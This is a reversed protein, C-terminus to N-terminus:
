KKSSKKKKDKMEVRRSGARLRGWPAFSSIPFFFVFFWVVLAVYRIAVYLWSTSANGLQTEALAVSLLLAGVLVPAFLQRAAKVLAGAQPVGASLHKGAVLAFAMSNAFAFITFATLWFEIPNESLIWPSLDVLCPIFLSCLVFPFLACAVSKKVFIFVVLSVLAFIGFMPLVINEGGDLVLLAVFSVLTSVISAVGARVGGFVFLMAVCAVGAAILYRASSFIDQVGGVSAFWVSFANSSSLPVSVFYQWGSVFFGKVHMFLLPVMVVVMVLLAILRFRLMLELFKQVKGPKERLDM